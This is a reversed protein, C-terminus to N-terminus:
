GGDGVWERSFYEDVFCKCKIPDLNHLLGLALPRGDLDHVRICSKVCSAPFAKVALTFTSSDLGIKTHHRPVHPPCQGM